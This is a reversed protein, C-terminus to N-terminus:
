PWGIQGQGERVAWYVAGGWNWSAAWPSDIRNDDDMRRITVNSNWYADPVGDNNLDAAIGAPLDEVDTPAIESGDSKDKWEYEWHGDNEDLKSKTKCKYNGDGDPGKKCEKSYRQYSLHWFLRYPSQASGTFLPLDAPLQELGAVEGALRSGGVEPHSPVEWQFLFPASTDDVALLTLTGVNPLTVNMPGAPNLTLTLSVDRWDGVRPDGAEGGGYSIYDLTGSGSASPQGGNRIGTPWRVLTVPYPRADLFTEPFSVSAAVMWESQCSFGGGTAEFVECPNESEAPSGPCIDYATHMEQLVEGTCVDVLQELVYCNEPHLPDQVFRTTWATTGPTCGGPPPTSGGTDGTCVRQISGSPPPEAVWVDTCVPEQAPVATVALGSIFFALILSLLFLRNWSM